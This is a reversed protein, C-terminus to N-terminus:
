HSPHHPPHCRDPGVKNPDVDPPNPQAEAVRGLREEAFQAAAEPGNCSVAWQVLQAVLEYDIVNHDIKL